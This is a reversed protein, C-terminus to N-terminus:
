AIVSEGNSAAALKQVVIERLQARALDRLPLKEGRENLVIRITFIAAQSLAHDTDPKPLDFARRIAMFMEMTDMALDTARDIEKETWEYSGPV